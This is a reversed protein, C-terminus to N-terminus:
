VGLQPRPRSRRRGALAMGGSLMGLSLLVALGMLVPSRGIPGGGDNPPASPQSAAWPSAAANRAAGQVRFSTRGPTGSKPTGNANNQLALVVYWGPSLNGPLQFQTNIRGSADPTTTALLPGSRNKLRLTVASAGAAASYNKGTATVAQGPSAVKTNLKVTALVGCAWAVSALALPLVAGMMLGLGTKRRM